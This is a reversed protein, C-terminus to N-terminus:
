VRDRQRCRTRLRRSWVWAAGSGMVPLPGPALSPGFYGTGGDLNSPLRNGIVTGMAVPDSARAQGFTVGTAVAISPADTVVEDFLAPDGEMSGGLVYQGSTLVLEPIEVWRFGDRLLAGTGAPVVASALLNGAGDFLSVRHDSLLGDGFHDWFGLRFVQKSESVQFDYGITGRFDPNGGVAVIVTPVLYPDLPTAQTVTPLTCALSVLAAPFLRELRRYPHRTYPLM